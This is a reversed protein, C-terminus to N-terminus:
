DREKRRRRRKLKKVLVKIGNTWKSNVSKRTLACREMKFMLGASFRKGEEKLLDRAQKGESYRKKLNEHISKAKIEHQLIDTLVISSYGNSVNLSDCPSSKTSNSGSTTSMQPSQRQQESENDSEVTITEPKTKLIEPHLLLARNLPGWGRISIALKNTRVRGFSQQWAMNVIPIINNQTLTIKMGMRIKYLVLANKTKTVYIKWSGNQENSDGVQWYATGNPVGICVYWQTLADNVCKLFPIAFVDLDFAHRLSICNPIPFM